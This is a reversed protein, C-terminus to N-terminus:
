IFTFTKDVRGERLLGKGFDGVLFDDRNATMIFVTGHSLRQPGDLSSLLGGGSVMSLANANLTELQKDIEEFVILSKPPVKSILNILVTDSMDSSNLNVLYVSMNYKSSIVEITTTKGTGPAGKFLFGRRYPKGEDAYHDENKKFLKMDDLVKKINSSKSIESMNRPRRFIPFSWKDKDSTFFVSVNEPSCYETYSDSLFKKLNDMSGFITTLTIKDDDVSVSIGEVSYSGNPLKYQPSSNGDTAIYRNNSSVNKKLESKIAFVSKPSDKVNITIEKVFCYKVGNWVKKGVWKIEDGFM